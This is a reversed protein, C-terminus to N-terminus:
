EIPIKKGGPGSLGGRKKLRVELVGNKFGTGADEATVSAPLRIMRSLTGEGREHIYYTEQEEEVPGARRATIRLTQPNLLNIRIEDEKAGPLEAVVIVEDGHELIDVRFDATLGPFDRSGGRSVPPLGGRKGSGPTRDFGGERNDTRQDGDQRRGPGSPDDERGTM